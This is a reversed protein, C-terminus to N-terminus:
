FYKDFHDWSKGMFLNDQRSYDINGDGGGIRPWVGDSPVATQGGISGGNQVFSNVGNVNGIYRYWTGSGDLRIVNGGRPLGDDGIHNTEAIDGNNGGSYVNCRDSWMAATKGPVPKSEAANMTRQLTCRKDNGSGCWMAYALRYYNYRGDSTKRINSACVFSKNTYFRISDDPKNAVANLNGGIYDGYVSWFGYVGNHDGSSMRSYPGMPPITDDFDGIYTLTGLGVQKLNNLCSTVRAKNRAAGLAPLLLSALIAIISIVVLLEILTFRHRIRQSAQM